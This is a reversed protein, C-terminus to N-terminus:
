AIRAALRAGRSAMLYLGAHHTPERPHAATDPLGLSRAVTLPLDHDTFGMEEGDDRTLRWCRCVTTVPRGLHDKLAEPYITM